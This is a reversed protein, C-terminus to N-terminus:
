RFYPRDEFRVDVVQASAKSRSLEDRITRLTAVQRDLNGAENFRARWGDSTPVELGADTSWEFSLPQIGVGPLVSALRASTALASVDVRDGASLPRADVQAVSPLAALRPDCPQGACVRAQATEANVPKLIVGERDVLYTQDGSTWFAAPQREVIRIDLTEPLTAVVDVQQVLPMARLRAAIQARDVWFVNAGKVPAANEIDAQTLLATGQVRVSRVRFHESSACDYVLWAAGILLAMGLGRGIAWVVFGPPLWPERDVAAAVARRVAPSQPTKRRPAAPARAV